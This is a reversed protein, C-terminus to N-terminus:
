FSVKIKKWENSLIQLIFFAERRKSRAKYPLIRALTTFYVIDKISVNGIPNKQNWMSDFYNYMEDAATNKVFSLHNMSGETVLSLDSDWREYEDLLSLRIRSHDYIPNSRGLGENLFDFNPKVRSGIPDLLYIQDEGGMVINSLTPDGHILTPSYKESKLLSTLQRNNRNLKAKVENLVNSVTVGNVILPFEKTNLDFNLQNIGNILGPVAKYEIIEILDSMDVKEITEFKDYIKQLGALLNGITQKSQSKEVNFIHEGLPRLNEIFEM